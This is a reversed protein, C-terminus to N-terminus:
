SIYGRFLYGIIFGMIFRPDITIGKMEERTPPTGPGDDEEEGDSDRWDDSYWQPIPLHNM